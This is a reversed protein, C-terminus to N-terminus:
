WPPAFEVAEVTERASIRPIYAHPRRDALHDIDRLSAHVAAAPDLRAMAVGARHGTRALVMGGPDVVKAHGLFRLPGWGGTM